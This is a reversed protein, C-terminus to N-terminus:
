LLNHIWRDFLVPDRAKARLTLLNIEKRFVEKAKEVEPQINKLIFDNRVTWIAWSMVIAAIMFFSNSSQARIQLVAETALINDQFTIGISNWCEKAFPCELFLHASTEEVNLSCMVCNYSDLQM